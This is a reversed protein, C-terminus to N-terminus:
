PGETSIRQRSVQHFQSQRVHQNREISGLWVLLWFLSALGAQTVLPVVLCLALLAIRSALSFPDRISPRILFLWVAALFACFGFIGTDLLYDLISSESYLQFDLSLSRPAGFFQEVLTWENWFLHIAETWFGFRAENGQAGVSGFELARSLAVTDVLNVQSLIWTTGAAAIAAVGIALKNRPPAQMFALTGMLSAFALGSKSGSLVSIAVCLLAVLPSKPAYVFAIIAFAVASTPGAFLGKSRFAGVAGAMLQEDLILGEYRSVAVFFYARNAVELLCIVFTVVLTLLILLMVARKELLLLFAGVIPTYALMAHIPEFGRLLSFLFLFLFVGTIAILGFSGGQRAALMGRSGEALYVTLAAICFLGLAFPQNFPIGLGFRIFDGWIAAAFFISAAALSGVSLGTGKSLPQEDTGLLTFINLQM